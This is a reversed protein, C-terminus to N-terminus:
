HRCSLQQINHCSGTMFTELTYMMGSAMSGEPQLTSRRCSLVEAKIMTITDLRM